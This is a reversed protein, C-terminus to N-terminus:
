GPVPWSPGFPSYLYLEARKKVEAISDRGVDTWISATKKSTGKRQMCISCVVVDFSTVSTRKSYWIM